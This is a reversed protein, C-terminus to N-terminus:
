GEKTEKGDNGERLSGEGDHPYIDNILANERQKRKRNNRSPGLDLPHRQKLPRSHDPNSLASYLPDSPQRRSCRAPSWHLRSCRRLPAM